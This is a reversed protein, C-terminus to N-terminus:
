MRYHKDDDLWSSVQHSQNIPHRQWLMRMTHLSANVKSLLEVQKMNLSLDRQNAAAGHAPRQRQERVDRLPALVKKTTAVDLGAKPLLFELRQLTGMVGDKEDKIPIGAATLAKHRINDSLLKDLGHVFHDYERLSPRLIWGFERPPEVGNFLKQGFARKHLENLAALESFFRQFPGAGDPWHGMQSGWWVPHPEVNTPSDIEFTRWRQQIEPTFNKLDCLFVCVYRHLTESEIESLDYAFGGHLLSVKDAEPEKEDIYLEDAINFDFGFDHSTFEFRPDERYTELVDARFYALELTTGGEAMRRQYPTGAYDTPKLFKALAAATPYLCVAYAGDAAVLKLKAIQADISQKSKWPRIHSNMYDVDGILDLKGNRLLRTAAAVEKQDHGRHVPYGNFDDGSFYFDVIKALLAAEQTM